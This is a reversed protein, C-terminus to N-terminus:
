QGHGRFSRDSGLVAVWVNGAKGFRLEGRAAFRVRKGSGREMVMALREFDQAEVRGGSQVVGWRHTQAAIGAGKGIWGGEVEGAEPEAKGM